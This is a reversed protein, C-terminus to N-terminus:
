AHLLVKIEGRESIRELVNIKSVGLRAYLIINSSCILKSVLFKELDESNISLFIVDYNTLLTELDKEFHESFLWDINKNGQTYKYEAAEMSSTILELSNKKENNVSLDLPTSIESLNLFASNRKQELTSWGLMRSILAANQSRTSDITVVIKGYKGESAELLVQQMLKSYKRKIQSYSDNLINSKTSSKLYFRHKFTANASDLLSQRSYFVGKRLAFVWSIMLGFFIGVIGSLGVVHMTVPASPSLPVDAVAIIKSNNPAFGAVLSQSKVQEVLVTYTTEAIKLDRTLNVLEDASEAYKLAGQELKSIETGLSSSRDSISEKVRQLTEASPWSWSNVKESIGLIRRFASQDLVPFDKRLKLYNQRTDSSSKIANLLNDIAEMQVIAEDRKSRLDDLLISSASLTNLSQLSNNLTFQKFKSQANEFNLLADALVTSLYELRKSAEQRKEAHVLDIIKDVVHNAIKAARRPNYHNVSVSIAGADTSDIIINDQSKLVINWNIIDNPDKPLSKWGVLKKVLTKWTEESAEANYKNFFVDNKFDLDNAVDLIFERASFREIFADLSSSNKDTFGALAALGGLQGFAAGGFNNGASEKDLSFISTATYVREIRALYVISLFVFIASTLFILFKYAWLVCFIEKINIEDNSVKKEVSQM